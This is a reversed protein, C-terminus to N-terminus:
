SGKSTVPSPYLIIYGLILIYPERRCGINISIYFSAFVAAMHRSSVTEDDRREDRLHVSGTFCYTLYWM